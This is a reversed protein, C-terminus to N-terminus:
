LQDQSRLVRDITGPSRKELDDLEAQSMRNLEAMTPDGTPTGDAPSVPAPLEGYTEAYRKRLAEEREKVKADIHSSFSDHSGKAAELLAEASDYSELAAFISPDANPYESRASEAARAIERERALEARMVRTVDEPSMAKPAEESTGAKLRELEAQADAADKRAKDRDSQLARNTADLREREAAFKEAAAQAEAGGDDAAGTPKGGAPDTESPTPTPDNEAM